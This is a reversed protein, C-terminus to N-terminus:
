NYLTQFTRENNMDDFFNKSLFEDDISHNTHLNEHKSYRAHLMNAAEDNENEFSIFDNENDFKNIVFELDDDSRRSIIRNSEIEIRNKDSRIRSLRFRFSKSEIQISKLEKQNRSSLSSICFSKIEVKFHTTLIYIYICTNYM